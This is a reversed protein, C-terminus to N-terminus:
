KASCIYWEGSAVADEYEAADTIGLADCLFEDADEFTYFQQGDFQITGASNEIHFLTHKSM